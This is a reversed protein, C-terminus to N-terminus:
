EEREIEMILGVRDGPIGMKRVPSPTKLRAISLVTGDGLEIQVSEGIAMGEIAKTITRTEPRKKAGCTKCSFTAHGHDQHGGTLDGTFNM